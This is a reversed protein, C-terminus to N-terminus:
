SPQWSRRRRRWVSATRWCRGRPPLFPLCPLHQVSLSPCKSKETLILIPSFMEALREAETETDTEAGVFGAFLAFAVIVFLM